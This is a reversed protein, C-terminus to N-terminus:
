ALQGSSNKWVRLEGASLHKIFKGCEECTATHHPGNEEV